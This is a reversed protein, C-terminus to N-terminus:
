VKYILLKATGFGEPLNEVSFIEKHMVVLVIHVHSFNHTSMTEDMFNGAVLRVTSDGPLPLGEIIGISDGAM